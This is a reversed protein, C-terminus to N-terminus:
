AGRGEREVEATRAEVADALEGLSEPPVPSQPFECIVDLPVGALFRRMVPDALAGQGKQSADARARAFREALLPGGVPHELWEALTNRGTLRIGSPDGAVTVEVRARIDRSSAGAEFGYRGGEVKWGDERESFYALDHRTVEVVAERSEGPELFLSVFGRLERVPRRVRSDAPGSGYIQVVERGARSGTNTVTLAVRFVGEDEDVRMGDYGFTTYSLGHGFPFAVEGRRADFGRYGM